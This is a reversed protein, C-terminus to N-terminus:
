SCVQAELGHFRPVKPFIEIGTTVFITKISFGQSTQFQLQLPLAWLGKCKPTSFPQM